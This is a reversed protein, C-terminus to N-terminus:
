FREYSRWRQHAYFASAMLWMAFSMFIIMVFFLDYHVKEFLHVLHNEDDYLVMSLSHFVQMQIGFYTSVGLFGLVFFEEYVQDLVGKMERPVTEEVYELVIKLGLTIVIIGAIAVVVVQSDTYKISAHDGHGHGSDHGEGHGGSDHSGHADPEAGDGVVSIWLAPGAMIVVFLMVALLGRLQYYVLHPFPEHASPSRGHARQLELFREKREAYDSASEPPTWRPETLLERLAAIDMPIVVGYNYSKGTSFLKAHSSQAEVARWSMSLRRQSERWHILAENPPPLVSPPIALKSHSTTTDLAQGFGRPRRRGFEGGPEDMPEQLLCGNAEHM